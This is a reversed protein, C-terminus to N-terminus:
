CDNVKKKKQSISLTLKHSGSSCKSALSYLPWNMCTIHRTWEPISVIKHHQNDM